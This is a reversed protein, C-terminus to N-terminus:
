DDRVVITSPSIRQIQSWAITERTRGTRRM